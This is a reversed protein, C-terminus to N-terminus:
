QWQGDHLGDFAERLPTGGEDGAGDKGANGVQEVGFGQGDEAVKGTSFGGDDGQWM